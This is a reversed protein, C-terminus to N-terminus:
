YTIVIKRIIGKNIVEYNQIFLDDKRYGYTTEDEFQKFDKMYNDIEKKLQKESKLSYFTAATMCCENKFYSYKPIFIEQGQTGTYTNKFFTKNSVLIGLLIGILVIIIALVLILIRKKKM